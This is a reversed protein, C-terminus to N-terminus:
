SRRRAYRRAYLSPCRIACRPNTVLHSLWLVGCRRVKIATLHSLSAVHTGCCTSKDVQDIEVVRIAGSFGKPLLRSRVTNKYEDSDVDLWSPTVKRNAFIHGNATREIDDFPSSSLLADLSTFSEATEDNEALKFEVTTPETPGTLTWSHTDLHFKDLAIASIVHQATHQQM